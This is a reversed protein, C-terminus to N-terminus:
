DRLTFSHSFSSMSQSGGSQYRWKPNKALLKHVIAAVPEPVVDCASPAPILIPPRALLCGGDALRVAAGGDSKGEAFGAGAVDDEEGAFAVLFLLEECVAWPGEVVDGFGGGDEVVEDDTGASAAVVAEVGVAQVGDPLDTRGADVGLLTAVDRM